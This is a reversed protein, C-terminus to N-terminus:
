GMKIIMTDDIFEVTYGADAIGKLIASLFATTYGLEKIFMEVNNVLYYEKGNIDRCIEVTDLSKFRNIVVEFYRVTEFITKIREITNLLEKENNPYQLVYHEMYIKFINSLEKQKMMDFYIQEFYKFVFSRNLYPRTFKYQDTHKRKMKIYIEEIAVCREKLDHSLDNGNEGSSLFFNEKRGIQVKNLLSFKMSIELYLKVIEKMDRKDRLSVYLQEIEDSIEDPIFVEEKRIGNWELCYKEMIVSYGIWQCLDYMFRYTREESENYYNYEMMYSYNEFLKKIYEKVTIYKDYHWLSKKESFDNWKLGDIQGLNKAFAIQIAHYETLCKAGFGYNVTTDWIHTFEHFLIVKLYDPLKKGLFKQNIKIQINSLDTKVCADIGKMYLIQIEKIEPLGQVGVYRKFNEYEEYLVKKLQFENDERRKKLEKDSLFRFNGEM